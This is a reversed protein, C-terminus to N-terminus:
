RMDDIGAIDNAHAAMNRVARARRISANDIIGQLNRMEDVLKMDLEIAKILIDGGSKLVNLKTKWHKLDDLARGSPSSLLDQELRLIKREIPDIFCDLLKQDRLENKVDDGFDVGSMFSSSIVPDTKNVVWRKGNRLAVLVGDEDTEFSSVSFFRNSKKDKDKLPFDGLASGPLLLLNMIRVEDHDCNLVGPETPTISPLASVRNLMPRNDLWSALVGEAQVDPPSLELTKNKAIVASAIERAALRELQRIQDITGNSAGNLETHETM